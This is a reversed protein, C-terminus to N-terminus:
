LPLCLWESAWSVGGVFGLTVHTRSLSSCDFVVVGPSGLTWLFDRGWREPRNWPYPGIFGTDSGLKGHLPWAQSRTAPLQQLWWSCLGFRLVQFGDRTGLRKLLWAGAVDSSRKPHTQRWKDTPKQAKISPQIFTVLLTTPYIKMNISRNEKQKM